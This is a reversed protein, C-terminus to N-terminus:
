TVPTMTSGSLRTPERGLEADLFRRMLDAKLDAFDPDQFRNRREDPDEALDFLDGTGGRHVTMKYRDEVYSRLHVAALQNRHEVIVHDRVRDREGRWVPLQSEGQMQGPVAIELADLLTPALDVHAHLADTRRGVPVRGPWRVVLPVRLLDEGHVPGADSRAHGHDSTFVVLTDGAVALTDLRSLIRGIQRDLLTISGYQAAIDERPLDAADYVAAYPEPVLYPPKPDHFSAWCFFPRGARVSADIAAITREATWASHHLEVPLDWTHGQPGPRFYRRWDPVGREELWLAYHQGADVEGAHGRSLEVHDFGYYPGTWGRWFDLDLLTPLAEVSTQGAAPALPAFHARGVLSTAYGLHSLLGSVTPVDEPLKVGTMWCGHWAPYWGTLITARSPSCTPNTCYARDFALGEAALRDLNPTRLVPTRTGLALHHQQESTILLINM